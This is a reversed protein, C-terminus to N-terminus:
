PCWAHCLRSCSLSACTYLMLALLCAYVHLYPHDLGNSIPWPTHVFVFLMPDQNLRLWYALVYSFAIFPVFHSCYCMAHYVLDLDLCMFMDHLACACPLYCLAHLSCRELAHLCVSRCMYAHFHVHLCTFICRLMYIYVYLCPLVCIWAYLCTFAYVYAYSCLVHMCLYLNLCHMVASMIDLMHVYLDLCWCMLFFSRFMAYLM